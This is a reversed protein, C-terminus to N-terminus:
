EGRLDAARMRYYDAFREAEVALREAEDILRQCHNKMRPIAPSEAVKPSRANAKAFDQFMKRHETAVARQAAAKDRYEQAKALCEEATKGPLTTRVYVDATTAPTTTTNAAVSTVPAPAQQARLAPGSTLIAIAVLTTGAREIWPTM